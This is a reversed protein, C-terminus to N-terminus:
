RDYAARVPRKRGLCVHFRAHRDENERRQCGAGRDEALLLGRGWLPRADDGAARLDGRLVADDGRAMRQRRAGAHLDELAAAVGHIRRDGGVGDHPEDLRV